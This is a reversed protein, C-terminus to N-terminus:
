EVVRVPEHRVGADTVLELGSEGVLYTDEFKAGGRLSPNWAVATSVRCPLDGYPPGSEGPALEFERQEFALPGGQVHERWAEPHGASAYARALATVIEGWTRAPRTAALVAENVPALARMQDLLPDDGRRVALRTGAAHLGGRRAVAVVMIAEEVIDGVALPHRLTRLREDGGVILCVAKAGVSELEHAVAAAVDFDRSTGPRWADLGSELARATDRGLARLDDREPESLSLRASVIASTAEVGVIPTDSFLRSGRTGVRAVVADRQAEPDFWPVAVIEWGRAGPDFDHVLRPGEIQSTFLVRESPTVLAWIPDHASTLDIPDSLGGTIWNVSGSRALLLSGGLQDILADARALAHSQREAARRCKNPM